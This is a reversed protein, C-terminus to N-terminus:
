VLANISVGQTHSANLVDKDMYLLDANADVSFSNAAYHKAIREAGFSLSGTPLEVPAPESSTDTSTDSTSPIQENILEILPSVIFVDDLSSPSDVLSSSIVGNEDVEGFVQPKHPEPIVVGRSASQADILLAMEDLSLPKEQRVDVLQAKADNLKKLAQSAVRIDAMSPNTPAMAAAYVKKMKSVTALPDGEVVAIDIRVEGDVAYRRGDSGKEYSFQPSQALDGGVTSHAQEHAKVEADRTSLEQLLQQELQAIVQRKADASQGDPADEGDGQEVAEFPTFISERKEEDAGPPSFDRKGEAQGGHIDIGRDRTNYEAQPGQENNTHSKDLPKINPQPDSVLSHSSFRPALETAQETSRVLGSVTLPGLNLSFSSQSPNSGSLNGILYTDSARSISQSVLASKVEIALNSPGRSLDVINSSDLSATKVLGVNSSAPKPNVPSVKDPLSTSIQATLMASPM